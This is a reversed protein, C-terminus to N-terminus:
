KGKKLFDQNLFPQKNNSYNSSSERTSQFYNIKHAKNNKLNTSNTSNHKTKIHLNHNFNNSNKNFSDLFNNTLNINKKKLLAAIENSNDIVSNTDFHTAFLIKDGNKTQKIENKHNEISLSSNNLHPDVECLLSNENKMLESNSRYNIRKKNAESKYNNYEKELANTTKIDM